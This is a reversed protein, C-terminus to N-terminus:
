GVPYKRGCFFLALWIIAGTALGVALGQPVFLIDSLFLKRVGSSALFVSSISIGIQMLFGSILMTPLFGDPFPKKCKQNTAFLVLLVPVAFPPVTMLLLPLACPSDYCASPDTRFIGYGIAVPLVVALFGALLYCGVKLSGKHFM